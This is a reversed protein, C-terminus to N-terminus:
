KRLFNWRPYKGTKQIRRLKKFRFVKETKPKQPIANKM